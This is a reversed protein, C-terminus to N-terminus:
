VQAPQLGGVQGYAVENVTCFLSVSEQELRQFLQQYEAESMVMVVKLPQESLDYLNVMHVQGDRGVGELAGSVTAGKLGLEAALELLWQGIPQNGM